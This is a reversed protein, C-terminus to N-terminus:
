DALEYNDHRVRYSDKYKWLVVEISEDDGKLGLERKIEKKLDETKWSATYFTFGEIDDPSNIAERGTEDIEIETGTGFYWAEIFDIYANSCTEPYYAVVVDGQCCGLLRRVRYEKGTIITLITLVCNSYYSDYNCNANNYMDLTEKIDHMEKPSLKKGNEKKPLMDNLFDKISNRYYYEYDWGGYEKTLQKIKALYDKNDIDCYDKLGDIYVENYDDERIDYVRYDFDEPNLTRAYIKTKSM